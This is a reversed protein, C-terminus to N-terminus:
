CIELEALRGTDENIHIILMRSDKTSSCVIAVSKGIEFNQFTVTHCRAEGCPCKDVVRLEDIQQLFPQPDLPQDLEKAKNTELDVWNGGGFYEGTRLTELGLVLWEREQETM